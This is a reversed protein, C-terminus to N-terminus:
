KAVWGCDVLLDAGTMFSAADSALFFIAEAIESPDAFRGFAQEAQMKAKVQEHPLGTADTQIDIDGRMMDTDVGGPSISNVRIRHPAVEWALARTLAIIAGKTSGYVAHDIQGVHGSVSGLNVIAGSKREKMIPLVHKCFLFTGGLNVNVVRQYEEWSTEELPKVLVVAANNILVDIRGYKQFAKQVHEQVEAEESVDCKWFVCEGKEAEIEKCVQEGKELVDLIIVAYGQRAFLKATAAGIGRASGTILAVKKEANM